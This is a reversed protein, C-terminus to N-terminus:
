VGKITQTRKGERSAPDDPHDRLYNRVTLEDAASQQQAVKTNGLSEQAPATSDADPTGPNINVEL